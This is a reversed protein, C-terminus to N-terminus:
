IKEVSVINNECDYATTVDSKKKQGLVVPIIDVEDFEGEVKIDPNSQGAYLNIEETQINISGGTKKRIKVAYVPINGNNTISLSDGDISAELDVEGCAQEASKEQKQIVEGFFSMAWLLIILAIVVVISILLVTAIVPSLGKKNTM